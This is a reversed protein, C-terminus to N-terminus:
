ADRPPLVAGSPTLRVRDLMFGLQRPDSAGPSFTKSARITMVADRPREPRAPITIQVDEFAPGSQRTELLIGDCLFYLEPNDAPAARAGRARVDLTWAVRRDLGPLRLVVAERTWAFTMGTQDDREPPHIGGVLRPLDRDFDITLDPRVGYVLVLCAAGLLAGLVGCGGARALLRRM